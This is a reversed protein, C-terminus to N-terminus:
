HLAFAADLDALFREGCIDIAGVWGRSMVPDLWSDCGSSWRAWVALITTAILRSLFLLGDM